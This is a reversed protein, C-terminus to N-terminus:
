ECALEQIDNTIDKPLSLQRTIGIVATIVPIICVFWGVSCGIIKGMWDGESFTVNLMDSDKGTLMCTATIGQGMGLLMNIGGTNKDFTIKLGKKMKLVRVNFGKAQYREAIENAMADLDFNESVNVMFDNAM